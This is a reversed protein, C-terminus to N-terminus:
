WRASSLFKRVTVYRNCNKWQFLVQNRVFNFSESRTQMNTHTTTMCNQPLVPNGCHSSHQFSQFKMDEPLILELQSSNSVMNQAEDKTWKCSNNNKRKMQLTEFSQFQFNEEVMTFSNVLFGLSFVEKKLWPSVKGSKEINWHGRKGQKWHKLRPM